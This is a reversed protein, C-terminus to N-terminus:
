LKKGQPISKTNGRKQKQKIIYVVFLGV